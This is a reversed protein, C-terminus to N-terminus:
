KENRVAKNFKWLKFHFRIIFLVLILYMNALMFSFFYVDYIFIMALVLFGFNWYLAWILSEMRLNYIMEDEYKKRSFAILFLGIVLLVGLIEDFINNKIIHGDETSFISDVNLVSFVKIELFEPGNDFGPYVTAAILSPIFLIWGLKFLKQPLLYKYKM